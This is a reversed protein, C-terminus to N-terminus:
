EGLVAVRRQVRLRKIASLFPTWNIRGQVFKAKTGFGEKSNKLM